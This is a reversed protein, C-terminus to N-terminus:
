DKFLQYLKPNQVGSSIQQIPLMRFAHFGQYGEDGVGEELSPLLPVLAM